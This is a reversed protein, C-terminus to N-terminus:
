GEREEPSQYDPGRELHRGSWVATDYADGWLERPHWGFSDCLQEATRLTVTGHQRARYFARSSSSSPLLHEMPIRRRDARQTIAEVLPAAPLRRIVFQRAASM